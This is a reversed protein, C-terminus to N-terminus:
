LAVVVRQQGQEYIVELLNQRHHQQSVITHTHRRRQFRISRPERATTGQSQTAVLKNAQKERADPVTHHKLGVFRHPEEACTCSTVSIPCHDPAIASVCGLRMWRTGRHPFMAVPGQM